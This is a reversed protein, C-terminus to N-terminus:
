GADALGAPRGVVTILLDDAKLLRRAVRRIEDGTVAEILANRKDVYDIGLGDYLFGLLVSAIKASTDLRLAFSGTLYAKADALEPETPGEDAMRRIEGRIVAISEAVAENRTKVGGAFVHGSRMPMLYTYTGYALGRKERVEIMLRSSFGGGGLIENMVFAPIFDADDRAIGDLGFQVVSQPVDLDIIRQRARPMPPAMPIPARGSTAPLSGFVHDILRGLSAADIDGVAVIRLADRAFMRRRFDALDARTIAALSAETGNQPRGYPHDPYASAYWERSAISDPNKAAARLSSTFEARLREVPEEDFRPECVALRLLDMAADRHASLTQVTGYIADRTDDFGMRMAIREMREQFEHSPIDGAGEDMLATLLHALGEKGAPTQASGGEFAFRLALLPVRHEEVLWAAIGGPSVVQQIKM